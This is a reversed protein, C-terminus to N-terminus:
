KIAEPIWYEITNKKTAAKALADAQENGPIGAHTLGTHNRQRKRPAVVYYVDSANSSEELNM